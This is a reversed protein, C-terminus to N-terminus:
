LVEDRSGVFSAKGYEVPTTVNQTGASPVLFTYCLGRLLVEGVSEWGAVTPDM